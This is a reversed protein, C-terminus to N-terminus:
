RVTLVTGMPIRYISIDVDDYYSTGNAPFIQFELQVDDAFSPV